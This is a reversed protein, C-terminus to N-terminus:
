TFAQVVDTMATAQLIGDVAGVVDASGLMVDVQQCLLNAVKTNFERPDKVKSLVMIKDRPDSAEAHEVDINNVKKRHNKLLEHSFIKFEQELHSKHAEYLESVCWIRKVIEIGCDIAVVQYFTAKFTSHRMRRRRIAMNKIKNKLHRMMTDFKNMESAAGTHYKRTGCNCGPKFGGFTSPACIGAHQNVCFACIWYQSQMVGHEELLERLEDFKNNNMLEVVSQFEKMGLADAFVSAILHYFTNAWHHTVMAGPVDPLGGACVSAYDYGVNNTTKGDESRLRLRHLDGPKKPEQRQMDVSSVSGTVAQESAEERLYGDALFDDLMVYERLKACQLATICEEPVPQGLMAKTLCQLSHCKRTWFYSLAAQQVAAPPDLAITDKSCVTDRV